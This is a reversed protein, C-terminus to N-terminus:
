LGDIIWEFHGDYDAINILRSGNGFIFIPNPTLLIDDKVCFINIQLDYLYAIAEASAGHIIYDFVDQPGNLKAGGSGLIHTKGVYKDNIDHIKKINIFKQKNKNEYFSGKIKIERLIEDRLAILNLSNNGNAKLFDFISIWFCQNILKSKRLFGSNKKVSIKQLKIDSVDTEKLTSSKQKKKGSRTLM